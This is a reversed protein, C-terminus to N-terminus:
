ERERAFDDDDANHHAGGADREAGFFAPQAADQGRLLGDSQRDVLSVYLRNNTREQNLLSVTQPVDMYRNTSAPWREAHPEARRCREASHPARGERDRRCSSRSIASSAARRSVAASLSEGPDRRGAARESNPTWANEITAMRREPLLDVTVDAREAGADEGFNMFLRNFKDGWWGALMMRRPFRCRARREAHHQPRPEAAMPLDVKGSLRYTAEDAFENM